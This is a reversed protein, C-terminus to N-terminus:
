RRKERFKQADIKDRYEQVFHELEVKKLGTFSEKEVLTKLVGKNSYKDLLDASLTCLQGNHSRCRDLVGATEKQQRRASELDRELDDVKRNKEAILKKLEAFAQGGEARASLLIANEREAENLKAELARVKGSLDVGVTQKQQRLLDIEGQLRNREGELDFRARMLQEKQAKEEAYKRQLLEMRRGNEGTKEAFASREKKLRYEGVGYGAGLGAALLLFGLFVTVIRTKM